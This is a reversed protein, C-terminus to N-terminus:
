WRRQCRCRCGGFARAERHVGVLGGRLPAGANYFDQLLGGLGGGRTGEAQWIMPHMGSGTEFFNLDSDPFVRVNHKSHETVVVYAVQEGADPERDVGNVRIEVREWDHISGRQKAHYVHYLLVLDKREGTMFEILGTYLTPRIDWGSRAGAIFRDLDEWNNKNNSFDGDRDFDFNTVWDRGRESSGSRARIFLLPAYYYLFTRRADNTLTWGDEISGADLTEGSDPQSGSDLRSGADPAVESDPGDGADSLVAADVGDFREGDLGADAEPSTGPDKSGCAALLLAAVAVRANM